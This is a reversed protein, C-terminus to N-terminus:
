YKKYARIFFGRNRNFVIARYGFRILIQWWYDYSFQIFYKDFGIRINKNKM